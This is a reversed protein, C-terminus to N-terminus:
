LLRCMCCLILNMTSVAVSSAAPRAPAWCTTFIPWTPGTEPGLAWRPLSLSFAARMAISSSLALPTPMPPWLTVQRSSASSSPLSGLCPVATAWFSTSAFTLPM